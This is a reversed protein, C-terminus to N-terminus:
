ALIDRVSVRGTRTKQQGNIRWVWRLMRWVVEMLRLIGLMKTLLNSPSRKYVTPASTLKPENQECRCDPNTSACVNSRMLCTGITAFRRFSVPFKGIPRALQETRFPRAVCEGNGGCVVAAWAQRGPGTTGGAGSLTRSQRRVGINKLPRAKALLRALTQRSPVVVPGGVKGHAREGRRNALTPRNLFVGSIAGHCFRDM